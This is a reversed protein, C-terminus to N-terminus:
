RSTTRCARIARTKNVLQEACFLTILLNAASRRSREVAAESPARAANDDMNLVANRHPSTIGSAHEAECIIDDHAAPRQQHVMM